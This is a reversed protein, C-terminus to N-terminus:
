QTTAAGEASSIRWDAELEADSLQKPKNATFNQAAFPGVSDEDVIHAPTSRAKSREDLRAAAVADDIKKQSVAEHKETLKEGWEADYASQLGFSTDGGDRAAKVKAVLPRTDLPKGFEKFHDFALDQIQLTISVAEGIAEAKAAARSDAIAKDFDVKRIIDGSETRMRGGPLEEAEDLDGYQAVFKRNRAEAATKDAEAKALAAQAAPHWVNVLDNHAKTYKAALPAVEENMARSYDSRTMVMESGVKAAFADNDLAANFATIQEAPLGTETALKSFAAKLEDKSYKKPM